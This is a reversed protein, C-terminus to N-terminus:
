KLIMNLYIKDYCIKDEHKELYDIAASNRCLNNWYSRTYYESSDNKNYEEVHDLIYNIMIKECM